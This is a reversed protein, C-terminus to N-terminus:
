SDREWKEAPAVFAVTIDRPSSKADLGAVLDLVTAITPAPLIDALTDEFLMKLEDWTMRRHPSGRPHAVRAVLERGDALKLTVRAPVEETNTAAEIEPDVM